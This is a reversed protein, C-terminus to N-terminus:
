STRLYLADVTILIPLLLLIIQDFMEDTIHVYDFGFLKSILVFSVLTMPLPIKLTDQLLLSASTVVLIFIFMEIM